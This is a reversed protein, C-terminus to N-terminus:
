SDQAFTRSRRRTEAALCSDCVTMVYFQSVRRNGGPDGCMECTQACLAEAADIAAEIEPTVGSDLYVRLGGFKEKVQGVTYDPDLSMLDQHLAVLIPHWGPLVCDLALWAPIKTYDPEPEPPTTLATAEPEVSDVQGSGSKEASSM